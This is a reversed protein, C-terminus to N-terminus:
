GRHLPAIIRITAWRVDASSKRSAIWRCRRAMPIERMAPWHAAGARRMVNGAPRDLACRAVYRLRHRPPESGELHEADRFAATLPHHVLLARQMDWCLVEHPRDASRM